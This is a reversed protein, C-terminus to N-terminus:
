RSLRGRRPDPSRSAQVLAARDSPKLRLPFTHDVEQGNLLMDIRRCAEEAVSIAAVVSQQANGARESAKGLRVTAENLETVAEPRIKQNLRTRTAIAKKLASERRSTKELDEFARSVEVLAAEFRTELGPIQVRVASIREQIWWTPDLGRSGRDLAAPASRQSTLPAPRNMNPSSRTPHISSEDTSGSGSQRSGRARSPRNGM